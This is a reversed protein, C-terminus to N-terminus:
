TKGPSLPQPPLFLFPWPKWEKSSCPSPQGWLQALCSPFAAPPQQQQHVRSIGPSPLRVRARELSRRQEHFAAPSKLATSFLVMFSNCKSASALETSSHRSPVPLSRPEVGSGFGWVVAFVAELSVGHVASGGCSLFAVQCGLLM